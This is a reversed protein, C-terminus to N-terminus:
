AIESTHHPRPRAPPFDPAPGTGSAPRYRCWPRYGPTDLQDEDLGAAAPWDSAEAQRLARTTARREAATQQPPTKDWWADWLQCAAARFGCTVTGVQGGVVRRVLAPPVHLVRAIRACDHGMAVLSRLRWVTGNADTRVAAAAPILYGPRPTM